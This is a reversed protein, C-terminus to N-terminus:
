VMVWGIGFWLAFPHWLRRFRHDTISELWGRNTRQCSHHRGLSMWAFPSVVLFPRVPRKTCYHSAVPTHLGVCTGCSYIVTGSSYGTARRDMCLIAVSQHDSNSSRCPQWCKGKDGSEFLSCSGLSSCGPVYVRRFKIEMGKFTKMAQQLELLQTVGGKWPLHGFSHVLLEWHCDWFCLKSLFNRNERVPPRKLWM